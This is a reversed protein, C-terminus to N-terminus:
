SSRTQNKTVMVERDVLKNYIHPFNHMLKHRMDPEMYHMFFEVILQLEYEKFDRVKM